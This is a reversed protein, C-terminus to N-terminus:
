GKWNEVNKIISQDRVTFEVGNPAYSTYSSDEDEDLHTYTAMKVAKVTKIGKLNDFFMELLIGDFTHQKKDNTGLKTGTIMKEILKRSSKCHNKFIKIYKTQTLDFIYEDDLEDFEFKLVKVNDDNFKKSFELALVPDDLFTYLGYGLSGPIKYHEKQKCKDIEDRISPIRKYGGEMIRISGQENTGHYGLLEKEM